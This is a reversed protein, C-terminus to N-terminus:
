KRIQREKPVYNFLTKGNSKGCGMFDNGHKIASLGSPAELELDRGRIWLQMKEDDIETINKNLQKSLIQTADFSLRLENNKEKKVLYQGIIEIHALRSLQMIEDKSLSGSFGRIKEKGTEILLYPLEEIGFEEKLKEVIQKKEKSKIFHANM